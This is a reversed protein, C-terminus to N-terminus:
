GLLGQAVGGLSFASGAMSEKLGTLYTGSAGNVCVCGYLQRRAHLACCHDVGVVVIADFWAWYVYDAAANPIVTGSSSLLMLFHLPGNTSMHSWWQLWLCPKLRKNNNNLKSHTTSINNYKREENSTLPTKTTCSDKQNSPKLKLFHPQAKRDNRSEPPSIRTYPDRKKRPFNLNSFIYSINSVFHPHMM